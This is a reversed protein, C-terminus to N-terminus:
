AEPDQGSASASKSQQIQELIKPLSDGGPIVAGELISAVLADAGTGSLNITFEASFRVTCSGPQINEVCCIQAANVVCEIGSENMLVIWHPDTMYKREQQGL